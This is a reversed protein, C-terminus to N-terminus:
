FILNYPLNCLSGKLGLVLGLEPKLNEIRGSACFNFSICTIRDSLDLDVQYALVRFFDRVDYTDGLTRTEGQLSKDPLM